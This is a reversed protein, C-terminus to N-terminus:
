RRRRVSACRSRRSAANSSSTASKSSATSSSAAATAPRWFPSRQAPRKPAVVPAARHVTPDQVGQLPRRRGRRAQPWRFDVYQVAFKNWSIAASKSRHSVPLGTAIVFAEGKGTAQILESRFGEALALTDFPELWRKGAIVWRVTYTTKRAGKYTLIKYVKVDYTTEMLRRGRPGAEGMALVIRAAAVRAAGIRVQGRERVRAIEEEVAM